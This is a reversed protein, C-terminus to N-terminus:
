RRQHRGESQSALREGEARSANGLTVPATAAPRRNTESWIITFETHTVTGATASANQRIRLGKEIQAFAFPRQRSTGADPM